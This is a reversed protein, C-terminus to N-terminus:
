MTMEISLKALVLRQGHYAVINIGRELSSKYVMIEEKSFEQSTYCTPTKYTDFDEVPALYFGVKKLLNFNDLLNM